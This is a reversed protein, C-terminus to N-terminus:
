VTLMGTKPPPLSRAIRSIKQGFTVVACIRVLINVRQQKGGTVPQTAPHRAAHSMQRKSCGSVLLFALLDFCASLVGPPSSTTITSQFISLLHSVVGAQMMDEAVLRVGLLEPNLWSSLKSGAPPTCKIQEIGLTCAHTRVHTHASMTM